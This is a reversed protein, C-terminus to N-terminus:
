GTGTYNALCTVFGMSQEHAFERGNVIVTCGIPAEPSASLASLTIVAMQGTAPFPRKVTWPLHAKHLRVSKLDQSPDNYIITKATGSGTVKFVVEPTTGTDTRGVTPIRQLVLGALGSLVTRPDQEKAGKLGSLVIDIILAGRRAVIEHEAMSGSTGITWYDFWSEDAGAVADKAMMEQRGDSAMRDNHDKLDSAYELKAAEATPQLRLTLEDNTMYLCDVGNSSKLPNAAVSPLRQHGYAAYDADTLLGCMKPTILGNVPQPWGGAPVSGSGVKTAPKGGAPATSGTCGALATVLVCGLSVAGLGLRGRM